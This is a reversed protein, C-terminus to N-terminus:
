PTATWNIEGVASLSGDTLSSGPPIAATDSGGGPGTLQSSLSTFMSQVSQEAAGYNGGATILAAIAQNLVGMNAGTANPDGNGLLNTMCATWQSAFDKAEAATAGDWGLQLDTLTNGISTLADVIDSVTTKLNLGTQYVMTPAITLSVANYNAPVTV